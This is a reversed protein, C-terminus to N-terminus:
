LQDEVSVDNSKEKSFSYAHARTIFVCLAVLLSIAALLTMPLWVPAMQKEHPSSSSLYQMHMRNRSRIAVDPNDTIVVLAFFLHSFISFIFLIYIFVYPLQSFCDFFPLCVRIRMFWLVCVCVCM